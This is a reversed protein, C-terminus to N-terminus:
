PYTRAGGENKGVMLRNEVTRVGPVKSATEEAASRQEETDVLGELAVHGDRTVVAVGMADVRPDRVLASSVKINLVTDSVIM